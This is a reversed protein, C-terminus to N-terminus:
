KGRQGGVRLLSRLAPQFSNVYSARASQLLPRAAALCARVRPAYRAPTVSVKAGFADVRVLQQTDSVGTGMLRVRRGADLCYRLRLSGWACAVDVGGACPWAGRM